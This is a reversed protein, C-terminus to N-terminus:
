SFLILSFSIVVLLTAECVSLSLWLIQNSVMQSGSSLVCIFEVVFHHQISNRDWLGVGLGVHGLERFGCILIEVAVFNEVFSLRQTLLRISLVKFLSIHVTSVDIGHEVRTNESVWPM